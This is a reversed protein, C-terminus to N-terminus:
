VGFAIFLRNIDLTGMGTNLDYGPLSQYFGNDGVIVDHFPGILNPTPRDSLPTV